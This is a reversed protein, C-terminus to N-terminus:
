KWVLGVCGLLSIWISQVHSNARKRVNTSILFILPDATLVGAEQFCAVVTAVREALVGKKINQKM